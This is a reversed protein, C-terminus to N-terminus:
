HQIKPQVSRKHRVPALAVLLSDKEISNISENAKMLYVSTLFM